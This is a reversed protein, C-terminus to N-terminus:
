AENEEIFRDADTQISEDWPGFTIHELLLRRAEERTYMIENKVNGLERYYNLPIMVPNHRDATVDIASEVEGTMEILFAHGFEIGTVPGTGTVICHVLTLDSGTDDDLLYKAANEFCSGTAKLTDGNGDRM